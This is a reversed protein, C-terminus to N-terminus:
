VLRWNAASKRRQDNSIRRLPPKIKTVRRVAASRSVPRSAQNFINTTHIKRLLDPDIVQQRSRMCAVRRWRTKMVINTNISGKSISM